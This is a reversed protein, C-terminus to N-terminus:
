KLTRLLRAWAQPITYRSELTSWLPQDDKCQSSSSVDRRKKLTLMLVWIAKTHVMCVDLCASFCCLLQAQDVIQTKDTALISGLNLISNIHQMKVMQQRDLALALVSSAAAILPSGTRLLGQRMEVQM